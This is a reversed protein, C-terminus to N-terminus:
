GEEWGNTRSVTRRAAGSSVGQKKVSLLVPVWQRSSYIYCVASFLQESSQRRAWLQRNVTLQLMYRNHISHAVQGLAMKPWCLWTHDCGLCVLRMAHIDNYLQM